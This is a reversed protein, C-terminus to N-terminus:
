YSKSASLCSPCYRYFHKKQEQTQQEQNNQENSIPHFTIESLDDPRSFYGETVAGEPIVFNLPALEVSVSRGNILTANFLVATKATAESEFTIYAAVSDTGNEEDFISLSVINGCFFL